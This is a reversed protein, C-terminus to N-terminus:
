KFLSHGLIKGTSYIILCVYKLVFYSVWKLDCAKLSGGCSNRFSEHPQSSHWIASVTLSSIEDEWILHLRIVPMWRCKANLIIFSFPNSILIIVGEVLPKASLGLQYSVSCVSVNQKAQVPNNLINSTNGVNLYQSMKNFIEYKWWRKFRAVSIKLEHGAATPM